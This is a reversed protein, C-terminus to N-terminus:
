WAGAAATWVWGAADLVAGVAPPSDEFGQKVARAVAEYAAQLMATDAPWELGVADTDGQATLKIDGLVVRALEIDYKSM